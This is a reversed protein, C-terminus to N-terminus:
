WNLVSKEIYDRERGRLNERKLRTLLMVSPFPISAPFVTPSKLGELFGLLFLYAKPQAIKAEMVDM